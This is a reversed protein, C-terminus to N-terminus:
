YDMKNEGDDHEIIYRQCNAKTDFCVYKDVKNDYVFWDKTNFDLGLIFRAM